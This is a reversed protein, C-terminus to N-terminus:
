GGRGHAGLLADLGGIDDIVVDARAGLSARTGTGTLVGVALGVSAGKAMAMDHDTDGVVAIEDPDCGAMRGFARVIAPNPKAGHGADWGAVFALLDAIGAREAFRVVAETNDSSAIGLTLGRATLAGLIAPLDGVPVMAEAGELFLADLAAALDDRAFDAGATVMAAAIEGASGAAMISTPELARGSADVGVAAAIRTALMADGRAALAVSRANIATWSAAYDVLTGDKDFLIARIPRRM